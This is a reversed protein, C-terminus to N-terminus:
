QGVEQFSADRPDFKFKFSGLAAEDSSFCSIETTLSVEIFASLRGIGSGHVCVLLEAILGM